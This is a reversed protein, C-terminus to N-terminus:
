VTLKIRNQNQNLKFWQCEFCNEKNSVRPGGDLVTILWCVKRNEAYAKCDKKHEDSCNFFEWCRSINNKKNLESM